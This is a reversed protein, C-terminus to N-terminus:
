ERVHYIGIKWSDTGDDGDVAIRWGKGEGLYWPDFHHMRHANWAPENNDDLQDTGTILPSAPIIEDTFRTPTLETIRSGTIEMGYGGIQSQFFMLIDDDRVIPRGGPRSAAPRDRIVPNDLHPQWGSSELEDSYYIYTHRREDGAISWWRDNWEFIAQDTVGHDHESPNYLEAARFWDTPFRNARYLSVPRSRPSEQLTMYYNGDAKFVQPFSIHHRLNVIIQQYEWSVGDDDSTAYAIRGRGDQVVEFFMYWEDEEVFLFPDAVFSANLDPIDAATLVPNTAEPDPIPNVPESHTQVYPSAPITEGSHINGEDVPEDPETDDGYDDGFDDDGAPDVDDSGIRGDGIRDNLQDTCGALGAIGALGMGALFRRRNQRKSM